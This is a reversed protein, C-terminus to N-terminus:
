ILAEIGKRDLINLLKLSPGGPHKEGIEWKQISLLSTNVNQRMIIWNLISDGSIGVREGQIEVLYDGTNCFQLTINCVQHRISYCLILAWLHRNQYHKSTSGAWRNTGM